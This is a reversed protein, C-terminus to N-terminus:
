KVVSIGLKTLKDLISIIREAEEMDNNVIAIVMKAEMKARDTKKPNNIVAMMRRRSGENRAKSESSNFYHDVIQEETHLSVVNGM